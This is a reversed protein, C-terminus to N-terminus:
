KYFTLIEMSEMREVSEIAEIVITKRPIANRPRKSSSSTPYFLFNCEVLSM